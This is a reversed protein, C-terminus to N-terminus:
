QNRQQPTSGQTPGLGFIEFTSEGTQIRSRIEVEKAQVQKAAELVHDAIARPVVVVGDDDGVIIDGPCIRARGITLDIDIEGPDSKVTAEPHFGLSFVQFGLARIDASDRVSCNFVAGTIGKRQANEALIDGFPGFRNSAAGDIVLVDGPQATHVARHIAANQGPTIRATKAPGAIRQGPILPKIPAPLVLVKPSANCLNGTQITLFKSVDRAPLRAQYPPITASQVSCEQTYLWDSVDRIPM